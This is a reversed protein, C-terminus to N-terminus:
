ANKNEKTTKKSLKRPHWQSVVVPGNQSLMVKRKKSTNHPASSATGKFLPTLEELSAPTLQGSKFYKNYADSNKVFDELQLKSMPSYKKWILELFTHIEKDFKPAEMLPMGFTLMHALNPEHFGKNDCVFIGPFLYEGNHGVSFHIQALFLLHHLKDNELYIDSSDAKRFFWNAASLISNIHPSSM